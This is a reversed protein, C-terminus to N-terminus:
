QKIFKKVTKRSGNTVAVFYIGKSLNSVELNLNSDHLGKQQVLLRGNADYLLVEGNLLNNSFQLQLHRNVPNPAITFLAADQDQLGLLVDGYIARDGNSNTLTLQKNGEGDTLIEYLIPDSVASTEHKFFDDFYTNKFNSNEPITCDDIPLFILNDLTITNQGFSINGGGCLCVCSSLNTTGDTNELFFLDTFELENNVPPIINEGEIVLENLYWYTEVLDPEQAQGQATIGVFCLAILIYEM